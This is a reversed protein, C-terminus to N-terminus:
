GPEPYSREFITAAPLSQVTPDPEGRYARSPELVAGCPGGDPFGQAIRAQRRAFEEPTQDALASHPRCHNYDSRWHKLKCALDALDLFIEVNLFEDRLRGNFSEIVANDTPKGPRSFHLSVTNAYAWRDLDKSICEPGNDCNIGDPVARTIALRDLVTAVHAGTIRKEVAIALCERTYQDVLTLARFRWGNYLADSVFDM